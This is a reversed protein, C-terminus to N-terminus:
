CLNQIAVLQQLYNWMLNKSEDTLLHWKQKTLNFFISWNFANDELLENKVVDFITSDKNLIYSNYEDKLFEKFLNVLQTENNLITEEFNNRLQLISMDDNGTKLLLVTADDVFKNFLKHYLFKSAM